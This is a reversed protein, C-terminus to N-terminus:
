PVSMPRRIAIVGEPVGSIVGSITARRASAPSARMATLRSPEVASIWSAKRPTAPEYSQVSFIIRAALCRPRVVCILVETPACLASSKSFMIESMSSRPIESQDTKKM